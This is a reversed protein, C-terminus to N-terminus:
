DRLLDQTDLRHARRSNITTVPAGSGTASRPSPADEMVSDEADDDQKRQALAKAGDLGFFLPIFSKVFGEIKERDGMSYSSNHDLGTLLLRIADYIIEHDEFLYK